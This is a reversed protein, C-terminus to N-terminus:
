DDKKIGRALTRLESGPVEPQFCLARILKAPGRPSRPEKFHMEMGQEFDEKLPLSSLPGIEPEPRGTFLQYISQGLLIRDVKRAVDFLTCRDSLVGANFDILTLQSPESLSDGMTLVFNALRLDMHAVGKEHCFLVVELAQETLSCILDWNGIWCFAVWQSLDMGPIRSLVLVEDTGGSRLQVLNPHPGLRELCDKESRTYQPSSSKLVLEPHEPHLHIRALGGSLTRVGPDELGFPLCM